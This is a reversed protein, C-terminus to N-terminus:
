KGRYNRLYKRVDDHNGVLVLYFIDGELKLIVRLRINIRFEYKDHNIKKFGLGSSFQGSVLFENFKSLGDRVLDQEKTNLKKFFREFSSLPVVYKM